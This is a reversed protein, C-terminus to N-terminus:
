CVVERGPVPKGNTVEFRARRIGVTLHEDLAGFVDQNVGRRTTVAVYCVSSFMCNYDEVAHPHTKSTIKVGVRGRLPECAVGLATCREHSVRAQPCRWVVCLRM